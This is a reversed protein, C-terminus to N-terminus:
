QRHYERYIENKAIGTTEAVAKIAASASMGGSIFQEVMRNLEGTSLTAREETTCGEVVLVMEGKLEEDIDLVEKISGRIFEEYKKTIERALCIRRDGLVELMTKLTKKLRHPSEYFILTHRIEKVEKLQGTKEKENASLFGIFTFPKVPLGSAVLACLMPSSGSVPVVNFGAATIMQVLLSGPDSILPYGADSVLAVNKGEELLNLLGRASAEENHEHHSILRKSIQFHTLLKLTNRTDEAAIVDVFNLVEIARPTMEDLNGIPTAVLYLSPLENIFSQQRKM